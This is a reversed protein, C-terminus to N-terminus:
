RTPLPVALDPCQRVYRTGRGGDGLRIEIVLRVDTHRRDKNKEQDAPDTVGGIANDGVRAIDALRQCKAGEDQETDGQHDREAELEHVAKVVGGVGNCRDDIRV